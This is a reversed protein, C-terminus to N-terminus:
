PGPWCGLPVKGGFLRGLQAVFVGVQIVMDGGVIELTNPMTQIAKRFYGKGPLVVQYPKGKPAPITVVLRLSDSRMLRGQRDVFQRIQQRCFNMESNRGLKTFSRPLSSDKMTSLEFFTVDFFAFSKCHGRREARNHVHGSILCDTIFM